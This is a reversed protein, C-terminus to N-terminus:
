KQIGAILEDIMEFALLYTGFISADVGAIVYVGQSLGHCILNAGIILDFFGIIREARSILNM